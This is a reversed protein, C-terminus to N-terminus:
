ARITVEDLHFMNYIKRGKYDCLMEALFAKEFEPEKRSKKSLYLFWSTYNALYKRSVGCFPTLFNKFHSHLANVRQVNISKDKKNVYEKSFVQKLHINHKQAFLLYSPHKDTILITHWDLRDGIAKDIETATLRKTMVPVMINEKTNSSLTVVQITTPEPDDDDSSNRKFDGGRKRPKRNLHRSSKESVPVETEDCQVKGIVTKPANATLVSLAKHRWDFATHTNVGLKEAVQIITRRDELCKFSEIFKEPKKLSFLVTGTTASFSKRCSKCIYRQNGTKKNTGNRSIEPSGCHPCVNVKHNVKDQIADPLHACGRDAYSKIYNGFQKKIEEPLHHFQEVM